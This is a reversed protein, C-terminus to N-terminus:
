SFFCFPLFLGFFILFSTIVSSGENRQQRSTADGNRSFPAVVSIMTPQVTPRMSPWNTTAETQLGVSAAADMTEQLESKVESFSVTRRQHSTNADLVLVSISRNASGLDNACWCIYHGQLMREARGLSIWTWITSGSSTVNVDINASLNGEACGLTM